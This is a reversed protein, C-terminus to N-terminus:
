PKFLGFKDNKAEQHQVQEIPSLITNVFTNEDGPALSRKAEHVDKIFLEDNVRICYYSGVEYTNYRKIKIEILGKPDQERRSTIKLIRNSEDGEVIQLFSSKNIASVFLAFVKDPPM